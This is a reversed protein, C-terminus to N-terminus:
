EAANSHSTRVADPGAGKKGVLPERKTPGFAVNSESNFTVSDGDFKLKYTRHFPTEVACVKVVATDDTEWAFTAAVPEDTYQALRGGPFTSRSTKWQRYGAPFELTKGDQTLALTLSRGEDDSNLAVHHLKQDNDPFDYRVNLVRASSASTADGQAAPVELSTLKQRLQEHAAEDAPLAQADCAVLLKDWLIDLVAQM